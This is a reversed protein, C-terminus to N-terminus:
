LLAIIALAAAVVIAYLIWRKSSAGASAAKAPAASVQEGPEGPEVAAPTLRAVLCGFFEDAYKRATGEILRSGLQALKGGLQADASYSLRTGGEADELRVKSTFKAFGAAGGKGEGILRYSENEVIDELRVTGRFNARVPGVKIAVKAQFGEEGETAVLEECGTICDKLVEPDNLAAWVTARDAPIIYEGTIDM